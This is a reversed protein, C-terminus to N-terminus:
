DRPSPSTYLLCHWSLGAARAIGLLGAACVPGVVLSAHAVRVDLVNVAALILVVIVVAVSPTLWLPRTM